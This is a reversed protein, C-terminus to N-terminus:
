CVQFKLIRTLSPGGKRLALFTLSYFGPDLGGIKANFKQGPKKGLQENSSPGSRIGYENKPGAISASVSRVKPDKAKAKATFAGTVCGDAPYGRIRIKESGILTAPHIVVTNEIDIERPNCGYLNPKPDCDFLAVRHDMSYDTQVVAQVSISGGAPIAGFSCTAGGYGTNTAGLGCSGESASISLYDNPVAVDSSPKTALTSIWL